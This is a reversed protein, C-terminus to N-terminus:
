GRQARKCVWIASKGVREYVEVLLIGVRKYLQLRFFIGRVPPAEGYLSDYPTDGQSRLVPCLAEPRGYKSQGPINQNSRYLTSYLM